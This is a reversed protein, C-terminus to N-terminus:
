KGPRYTQTKQTNSANTTSGIIAHCLYYVAPPMTKQNIHATGKAVLNIFM